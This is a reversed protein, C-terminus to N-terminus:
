GPSASAALAHSSASTTTFSSFGAKSGATTAMVSYREAPGNVQPQALQAVPVGAWASGARGAGGGAPGRGQRQKSGVARRAGLIGLGGASTSGARRKVSPVVSARRRWRRVPHVSPGSRIGRPPRRPLLGAPWRMAGARRCRPMRLVVGLGVGDGRLASRQGHGEFTEGDVRGLDDASKLPM